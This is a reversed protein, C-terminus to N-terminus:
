KKSENKLRKIKRMRWWHKYMGTDWHYKLTSIIACVLFTYVYVYNKIFLLAILFLLFFFKHLFKPKEMKNGAYLFMKLEKYLRIFPQIILYLLLIGFNNLFEKIGM